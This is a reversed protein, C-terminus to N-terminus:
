RRSGVINLRLPVTTPQSDPCAPRPAMTNEEWPKRPM